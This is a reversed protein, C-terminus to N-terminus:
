RPDTGRDASSASSVTASEPVRGSLATHLATVAVELQSDDPVSTTMLQLAMGPAALIRGPITKEFRASWRIIEYSIGGILPVFAIRVLREGMTEPKGL